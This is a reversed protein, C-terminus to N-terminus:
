MSSDSAVPVNKKVQTTVPSDSDSPRITSIM